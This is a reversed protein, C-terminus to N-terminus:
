RKSDSRVGDDKADGVREQDPGQGVLVGVAQYNDGVSAPWIPPRKGVLPRCENLLVALREVAKSWEHRFVEIDGSPAVRLLKGRRTDCAVEKLHQPDSGCQTTGKAGLLITGAAM